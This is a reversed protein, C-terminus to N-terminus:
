EEFLSDYNEDILLDIYNENLDPFESLLMEKIKQARLFYLDAESPNADIEESAVNSAFSEATIDFLSRNNMLWTKVEETFREEAVAEKKLTFSNKLSVLGIIIFIICIALSFFFSLSTTDLPIPIIKFFVLLLFVLGLGGVILLSFASDRLNEYKQSRKEYPTNNNETM